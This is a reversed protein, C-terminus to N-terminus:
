MRRSAVPLKLIRLWVTGCNLQAFTVAVDRKLWVEAPNATETGVNKNGTAENILVGMSLACRMMEPPVLDAVPGEHVKSNALRSPCVVENLQRCSRVRFLRRKLVSAMVASQFTNCEM